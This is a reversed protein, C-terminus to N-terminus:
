AARAKGQGDPAMLEAPDVGLAQAFKRVTSFRAPAGRETRAVTFRSVGAKAALEDQTLLRTERAARLRPLAVVGTPKAM